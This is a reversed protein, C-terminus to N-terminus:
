KRRKLDDIARDMNRIREDQFRDNRELDDVRRTADRLGKRLEQLQLDVLQEGAAAAGLGTSRRSPVSPRDLDVRVTRAPPPQFSPTPVTEVGKIPAESVVEEAYGAEVQAQVSAPMLPLVFGLIILVFLMMNRLWLTSYLMVGTFGCRLYKEDARTFNRTFVKLVTV